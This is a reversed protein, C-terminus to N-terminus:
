SRATLRLVALVSPRSIEGITSARVSLTISYCSTSQTLGQEEVGWGDEDGCPSDLMGEVTLRWNIPTQNQTPKKVPAPQAIAAHSTPRIKEIIQACAGSPERDLRCGLGPRRGAQHGQLRDAPRRAGANPLGGVTSLLPDCTLHVRIDALTPLLCVGAAGPFFIRRVLSERM